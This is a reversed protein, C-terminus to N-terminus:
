HLPFGSNFKISHFYNQKTIATFILNVWSLKLKNVPYFTKILEM